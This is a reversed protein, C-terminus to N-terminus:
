LGHFFKLLSVAALLINNWMKFVIIIVIIIIVVSTELGVFLSLPGNLVFIFPRVVRNHSAPISNQNVFPVECVVSM